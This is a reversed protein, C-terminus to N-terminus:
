KKSGFRPQGVSNMRTMPGFEFSRIFFDEVPIWTTIPGSIFARPMNKAVVFNGLFVALYAPATLYGFAFRLSVM